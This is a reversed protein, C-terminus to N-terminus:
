ETAPSAPNKVVDFRAVANTWLAPGSPGQEIWYVGEANVHSRTLDVAIEQRHPLRRFLSTKLGDPHVYTTVLEFDKRGRVLELLQPSLLTGPYIGSAKESLVVFDAGQVMKEHDAITRLYYGAQGSINLSRWRGFLTLYTANIPTPAPVFVTKTYATAPPAAGAILGTPPEQWNAGIAIPSNNQKVEYGSRTAVYVNWGVAGIASAPSNVQLLNNEAVLKSSEGSANTEGNSTVYSVRAYYTTAVAGPFAYQSLSPPDVAVAYGLDQTGLSRILEDTIQQNVARIDASLSPSITTYLPQGPSALSVASLILAGGFPVTARWARPRRAQGELWEFVLSLCHVTFIMYTGYFIGGFFYTKVAVVTPILYSVLVAAAYAIHRRLRGRVKGLVFRATNFLFAGIGVWFLVYLARDYFRGTTYYSMHYWISGIEENVDRDTVITTYIYNYISRANVAFFPGALVLVVLVFFGLDHWPEDRAALTQGSEGRRLGVAMVVAVGLLAATAPSASPKALLALASVVAAVANYRSDDRLFAPHLILYVAVGCLLGWYLDPRFEAVLNRTLPSCLIALLIALRSIPRLTRTLWLVVLVLGFVLVGNIAYISWASVGLIWYGTMALLSQLPAHQSFLKPLVHLPGRKWFVQYLDFGYLMYGVDDYGPPVSLRGVQESLHLTSSVLVAGMLLAVLVVQRDALRRAADPSDGKTNLEFITLHPTFWGGGFASILAAIVTSAILISVIETM